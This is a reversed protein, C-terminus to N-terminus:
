IASQLIRLLAAYEESCDKCMDLHHKVLPMLKAMDEGRLAMEAFQALQALVEDCGLEIQRTDKLQAILKHLLSALPDGKGKRPSLVKSFWRFFREFISM